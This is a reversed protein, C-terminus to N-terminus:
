QGGRQKYIAIAKNIDAVGYIIGGRGSDFVVAPLKEINYKMALMSGEYAKRFAKKLEYSGSTIKEQAQKQALVPDGSLGQSLQKELREPASLDYVSVFAVRQALKTNILRTQQDHFAEVILKEAQAPSTCLIAIAFLASKYM